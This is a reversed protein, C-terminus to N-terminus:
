IEKVKGPRIRMSLARDELCQLGAPLPRWGLYLLEVQPNLLHFRLGAGFRGVLDFLGDLRYGLTRLGMCGERVGARLSRIPSRGRRVLFQDQPRCGWCLRPCRDQSM